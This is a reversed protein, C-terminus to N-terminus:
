LYSQWRNPEIEILRQYLEEAEQWECSQRKVYARNSVVAISMPKLEFAIDGERLQKRYKGMDGLLRSYWYHAWAYGPNLEIARLFEREAGELNSDNHLILGLSTHAEALSEDLGIAMEAAERANALAEARTVAGSVSYDPLVVWADALGAYALAYNPDLEIAKEFYEIAKRIDQETRKNWLHRGRVYLNYAEINETYRRVIVTTDEGVLRIKMADVIAHSIDDQIDFVSELERNYSQSWLHADDAVSILQSTVRIRNDERQISGELIVRVQLDGGIKRLDRDPTKYRMVSTMSIVKLSRIGSLRSILVETMGDCFYEQDQGPSFDRFPLVAISDTWRDADAQVIGQESTMEGRNVLYYGVAVVVVACLAVIAVAMSGFRKGPRTVEVTDASRRRLRRLDALMGAANQYRTEVDKDLARDVVDQLGDPVDACFRALPQPTEQTVALLTAAEDEGKFPRRGTIMEYLVVGLSFLDSREDTKRGSAQEPSMYGVTGLTSGTKTIRDASQIAALGFDLLKARGDTDIVINSPKIDRHTVGSQHAKDLGECVQITLNIAQDPSIEKGKIVDRLSRGEVHQMAFFPRGRYESVEYVTVINPHDLMAAAQAERTFRAKAGENQSLHPPLFKLAVQRSLKTDEALYVEGMGGAGIKNVIKYHSVITGPTLAIFSQTKDDDSPEAPM